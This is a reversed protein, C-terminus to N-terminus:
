ITSPILLGSPSQQYKGGTIKAVETLNRTERGGREEDTFDRVFNELIEEQRAEWRKEKLVQTKARQKVLDELLRPTPKSRWHRWDRAMELAFPGLPMYRGQEDEVTAIFDWVGNAPFPGLVDENERWQKENYVDPSQWGELVWRDLGLFKGNPDPYRRLTYQDLVETVDMGWVFRLYPEGTPCLGVIDALQKDFGHPRVPAPQYELHRERPDIEHRM